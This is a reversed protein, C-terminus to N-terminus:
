KEIKHINIEVDDNILFLFYESELIEFSSILNEDIRFIEIDKLKISLYEENRFNDKDISISIDKLNKIYKSLYKCSIDLSDGIVLTDNLKKVLNKM